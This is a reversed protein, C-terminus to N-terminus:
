QKLNDRVLKIDAIIQEKAIIFSTAFYLLAGVVCMFLASILGKAFIGSLFYIVIGM